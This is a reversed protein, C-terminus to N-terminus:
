GQEFFWQWSHNALDKRRRIVVGKAGLRRDMWRRLEYGCTKVFQGKAKADDESGVTGLTAPALNRLEDSTALRVYLLSPTVAQGSFVECMREVFATWTPTEVDASEEFARLNGLFDQYGAHELIGGVVTVWQSFRWPTCTPKPRGAAIWARCLTLIAAAFLGRNNALYALLNAHKFGARDQPRAIDVNIRIPYLRTSLDGAVSLNNGNAVFVCEIPLVVETNSGLMRDGWMNGTIARSLDESGLAGEINDFVIAPAGTMLATTLVKRLEEHDKSIGKLPTIEGSAVYVLTQSLLTKGSSQLTADIAAMPVPGHIMRRAIISLPVALANTRSAESDFPFDVLADALLAKAGEVQDATPADAVGPFEFGAPPMYFLGSADDYGPTSIVTGDSRLTPTTIVGTLPPFPWQGLSAVDRVIELPPAIATRGKDTVRYYNAARALMGRLASETLLEIVPYDPESKKPKIRSARALGNIRTYIGGAKTLADLTDSTVDRMQRDNAQISPLEDAAAMVAATAAASQRDADLADALKARDIHGNAVPKHENRQTISTM